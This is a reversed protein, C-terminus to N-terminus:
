IFYLNTKEFYMTKNKYFYSVKGLNKNIEARYMKACFLRELVDSYNLGVIGLNGLKNAIKEAISTKEEVTIEELPKIGVKKLERNINIMHM